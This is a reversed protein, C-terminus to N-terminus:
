ETPEVPTETIDGANFDLDTNENTMEDDELDLSFGNDSSSGVLNINITTLVNRKLTVIKNELTQTINNGRAWTINLVSKLSYTDKLWCDYVDKFTLIAEHVVTGDSDLNSFTAINHNMEDTLRVSLKGDTLGNVNIQIGFVCKKMNISVTGSQVPTYNTVEGYYRETKPYSTYVNYYAQYSSNNMHTAGNGLGTLHNNDGLIFENKIPTLATYYLYDEMEYNYSDAIYPINQKCFPYGYGTEHPTGNYTGNGIFSNYVRLKTKGDKVMSCVFKYKYGTLLSIKMDAVNDFLGYGYVDNINGDKRKDYYVSIGYIDKSETEAGAAKSLPTEVITIDGAMALSVIISEEAEQTYEDGNGMYVAECATLCVLLTALLLHKEMINKIDSEVIKNKM